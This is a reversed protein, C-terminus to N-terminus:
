RQVPARMWVYRLPLGRGVPFSGEREVVFGYRGYFGVANLSSMVVMDRHGAAAFRDAAFAVLRRGVGQGAATPAVFLHGIENEKVAAYGVAEGGRRALFDEQKASRKRIWAPGNQRAVTEIV